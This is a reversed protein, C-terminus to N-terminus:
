DILEFVLLGHKSIKEDYGPFGHYTEVVEAENKTWPMVSMRPVVVLLEAVSKFRSVSAVTKELREKGCRFELVDGVAIADFRGGAARTEVTKRGEAVDLFKERDVARFNLVWRKPEASM